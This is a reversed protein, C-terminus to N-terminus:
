TEDEVDDQEEYGTYGYWVKLRKAGTVGYYWTQGSEKWRQNEWAVQYCTAWIAQTTPPRTAFDQGKVGRKGQDFVVYSQKIDTTVLTTAQATEDVHAGTPMGKGSFRKTGSSIVLIGPTITKVWDPATSTDSGHHGMKLVVEQAKGKALRDSEKAKALANVIFAETAIFADGMLFLKAPGYEVMLVISNTNKIAGTSGAPNGTCNSALITVDVDARSLQSDPTTSISNAPASGTLGEVHGVLFKYTANKDRKNKYLNIDGAFYVFGVKPASSSTLLSNLKNYHDEDPHTLVLTDIVGKNAPLYRDLVVQIQAFAEDGSKTSGCDILTLSNDPYVILTCDGQGADMFIVEFDAM